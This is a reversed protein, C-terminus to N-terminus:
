RGFAPRMRAVNPKTKQQVNEPSVLLPVELTGVKNSVTDLIGARLTIQGPPLEIKQTFTFPKSILEEYKELTLSMKVTQTLLAVRGRVVDYGVVDFELTGHFTEDADSTFAIESSPFGYHVEYQVLAKAAAKASKKDTPAPAATPTASAWVGADFLFQTAAPANGEMAAKMLAPGPAPADITPVREANYGKRFVLHVGPQNVTVNIHHYRGDDKVSPPIYTMTYFHSGDDIVKAIGPALDNTNYIAEGGTDEAVAEVKLKPAMDADTVGTPDMPCVAIQSKTLLEYTDMYHGVLTSDMDGWGYGGDRMLDIPMNPTIWILNKRGKVSAVYASIQDIAQFTAYKSSLRNGTTGFDIRDTNVVKILADRDSTFNQLMHLGNEALWFVAVQTGQPMTTLYKTIALKANVMDFSQTHMADLLFINVPGSAPMQHSNTYVQDPLKPAAPGAAPVTSSFEKFSRIPQAKGNEELAFDSRQLGVVPNGKADTVMVDVVIERSTMHMTTTAAESAASAQAQVTNAVLIQLCTALGVAILRTKSPRM